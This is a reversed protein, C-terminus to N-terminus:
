GRVRLFRSHKLFLSTYNNGQSITKTSGFFKAQCQYQEIWHLTVSSFWNDNKYRALKRLHTCPSIFPCLLRSWPMLIQHLYCNIELLFNLLINITVLYLTQLLGKFIYDDKFKNVYIDLKTTITSWSLVYYWKRKLTVQLGLPFLEPFHKVKSTFTNSMLSIHKPISVSNFFPKDLCNQESFNNCIPLFINWYYPKTGFFQLM